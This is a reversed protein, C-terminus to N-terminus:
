DEKNPQFRGEIFDGQYEDAPEYLLVRLAGAVIVGRAGIEAGTRADDFYALAAKANRVHAPHGIM